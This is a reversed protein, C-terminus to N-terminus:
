SACFIPSQFDEMEPHVVVFVISSMCCVPQAPDLVFRCGVLVCGWTAKDIGCM